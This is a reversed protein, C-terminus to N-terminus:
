GSSLRRLGYVVGLFGSDIVGLVSGVGILGTYGTLRAAGFSGTVM